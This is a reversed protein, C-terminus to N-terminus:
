DGSMVVQRTGGILEQHRSVFAWGRRTDGAAAGSFENRSLVRCLGYESRVITAGCTFGLVSAILSTPARRTDFLLWTQHIGNRAASREHAELMLRISLGHGRHQPLVALRTYRAVRGDAQVTVGSSRHLDQDGTTEVVTLTGVSDSDPKLRALLRLMAAGRPVRFEPLNIRMERRFVEDELYQVARLDREGWAETIYVQM